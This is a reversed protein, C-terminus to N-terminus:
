QLSISVDTNNIVSIHNAKCRMIRLRNESICRYILYKCCYFQLIIIFNGQMMKRFRFYIKFPSRIMFVTGFTNSSGSVDFLNIDSGSIWRNNVLM